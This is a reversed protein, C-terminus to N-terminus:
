PLASRDVSTLASCAPLRTLENCPVPGNVTNAGDFAANAFNGEAANFLSNCGCFLSSNTPMKVYWTKDPDATYLLSRCALCFTFVSCPSSTNIVDDTAPTNTFPLDFTIAASLAADLPTTCMM